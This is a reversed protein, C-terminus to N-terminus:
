TAPAASRLRNRWYQPNLRIEDLFRCAMDSPTNVNQEWAQVTKVSVGLLQAFVSQSARLLNRTRRVAAGDYQRPRLDLVVTRCTFEERIRKDGQLTDAFERLGAVIEPAVRVSATSNGNRRPM